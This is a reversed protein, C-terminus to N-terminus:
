GRSVATKAKRRPPMTALLYRREPEVNLGRALKDDLREWPDFADDGLIDRVLRGKQRPTLAKQVEGLTITLPYGTATAWRDVFPLSAVLRGAEVRAVAPQTTGISQALAAQTLGAKLRRARLEVALQAPSMAKTIYWIRYIVAGLSSLHQPTGLTSTPKGGSESHV